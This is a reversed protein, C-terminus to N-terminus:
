RATRGEEWAAPDIVVPCRTASCVVSVKITGSTSTRVGETSPKRFVARFSTTTGPIYTATYTGPTSSASMAFMDSWTTGVLRQLVVIRGAMPNGALRGTGNSKLTATFTAAAGVKVSSPSVVLTLTTPVDLCTSYLTTWSTVDYVQQLTAVDCRGFSSANWGALPRTRSYTQVVADTYDSNDPLNVHHDLGSVHGLEDITITEARYCGNPSGTMECWSLTGWDYRHGNERFWLHWYSGTPNRSFCALGGVGCPNSTGYSVANSAAASYTFSPSRALRSANVDAAAAGIATKMAAPPVAASAWTYTLSTDIPWAPAITPDPTAALAAGASVALLSLAAVLAVLQPTSSRTIV